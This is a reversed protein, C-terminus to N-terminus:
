VGILVIVSIRLEIVFICVHVHAHWKTTPKITFVGAFHSVQRARTRDM